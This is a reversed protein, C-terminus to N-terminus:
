VSVEMMRWREMMQSSFFGSQEITSDGNLEWEVMMNQHNICRKEHNAM